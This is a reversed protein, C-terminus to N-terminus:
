SAVSPILCRSRPAFNLFKFMNSGLLSFVDKLTADKELLSQIRSNTIVTAVNIHKYEEGLINAAYDKLYTRISSDTLPVGDSYYTLIYDTDKLKHAEKYELILSKLRGSVEVYRCEDTLLGELITTIKIKKTSADFDKFKLATSETVTCGTEYLLVLILRHFPKEIGNILKQIEPRTFYGRVCRPVKNTNTDMTNTDMINTDM